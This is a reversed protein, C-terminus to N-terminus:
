YRLSWHLMNWVYLFWIFGACALGALSYSVRSLWRQNTLASLIRLIVIIGVIDGAWGIVQILRILGNFKPYFIELHSEGISFFGIFAGLFALDIISVIRIWKRLSRQQESLDLKIGYFRRIVAAVPWLLLVVAFIICSGILIPMELSMNESWGSRQAVEFPYDIVLILRGTDDRKFALRDQDNLDRFMMAGIEAFKKPQGSLDKMEPVSITQDDNRKVQLEGFATLVKLITTEARRSSEYRGAVTASDQRATSVAAPAPVQYPFYRDLFAHWLATRPSIETKGLSNYSVFFGVRAAPILHLDSHFYETDGAHGIIRQGNRNEEYFEVCMANMDPLNAFQRQHMFQVTEPKLIRVGDLEGGELHAIMFRAMDNATTSASGAPTAQVVEFPKAPGSAVVYGDSMLNKLADPLPQRFTTHMMGLPKFIHSDVYDDFKEGSVREIIYGAMTAGYNSYAPTTGPPYVRNPLHAKMYDGLPVLDKTDAIFLQQVTEEFGPTHTMLNRITIPKPFTAPVKFDLYDNVDRDLDLKGQEMLQMAATWTILKSVSGPRFLTDEPSPVIKKAVDSYGYGKSFLLKGDKVVSIVAGAVNERELQMPMLGDLFAEVDAASMEHTGQPAPPPTARNVAAEKPTQAHTRLEAIGGGVFLMAVLAAAFGALKM